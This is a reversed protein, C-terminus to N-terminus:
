TEHESCCSGRWGRDHSMKFTLWNLWHSDNGCKYYQKGRHHEYSALHLQGHKIRRGNFHVAAATQRSRTDQGIELDFGYFLPELRPLSSPLVTNFASSGRKEHLEFM